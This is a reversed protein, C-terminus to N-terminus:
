VHTPLRKSYHIVVWYDILMSTLSHGASGGLFSSQAGGGSKSYDTRFTGLRPLLLLLMSLKCEAEFFSLLLWSFGPIGHFSLFELLSPPLTPSGQSLLFGARSVGSGLLCWVFLFCKFGLKPLFSFASMGDSLSHSSLARVRSLSCQVPCHWWWSINDMDQTRLLLWSFM